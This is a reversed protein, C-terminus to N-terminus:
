WGLLWHYTHPGGGVVAAMRLFWYRVDTPDRYWPLSVRPTGDPNTGTSDSSSGGWLSDMWGFLGESRAEEEGDQEGDEHDVHDDIDDTDESLPQECHFCLSLREAAMKVENMFSFFGVLACVMLMGTIVIYEVHGEGRVGHRRFTRRLQIAPTRSM